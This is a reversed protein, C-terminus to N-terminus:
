GKPPAPWKTGAQAHWASCTPPAHRKEVGGCAGQRHQSSLGVSPSVVLSNFIRFHTSRLQFIRYSDRFRYDTKVEHGFPGGEHPVM